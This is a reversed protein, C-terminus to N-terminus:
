PVTRISSKPIKKGDVEIYEEAPESTPAPAPEIPKGLAVDVLAAVVAEQGRIKEERVAQALLDLAAQLQEHYRRMAAVDAPKLAAELRVRWEGGIRTVTLAAPTNQPGFLVILPNPMVRITTADVSEVRLRDTCLRRLQESVGGPLSEDQARLQEFVAQVREFSAFLFDCDELLPGIQEENLLRLVAQVEGSELADLLFAVLERAAAESAATGAVTRATGAFSAPQYQAPDKLIGLDPRPAGLPAGASSEGLAVAEQGLPEAPKGCSVLLGMSLGLGFIVLKQCM